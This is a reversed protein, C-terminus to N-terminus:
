NPLTIHFSQERRCECAGSDSVQLSFPHVNLKSCKMHLQAHKVNEKGVIFLKNCKREM